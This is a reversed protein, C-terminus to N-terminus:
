RHLSSYSCHRGAVLTGLAVLFNGATYAIGWDGYVFRCGIVLVFSLGLTVSLAVHQSCKFGCKIHVAHFELERLDPCHWINLKRLIDQHSIIVGERDLLPNLAAYGPEAFAMKLFPGQNLM